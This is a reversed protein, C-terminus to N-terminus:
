LVSREFIRISSNDFAPLLLLGVKLDQSIVWVFLSAMSIRVVTARVTSNHDPSATLYFKWEVTLCM